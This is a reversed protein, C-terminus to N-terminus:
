IFDGWDLKKLAKFNEEKKTYTKEKIGEDSCVNFKVGIKSHEPHRLIVEKHVDLSPKKSLVIYSFKEDEFSETGDKLYRQVKTREIRKYFHCWDEKSMPCSKENTCPAIVHAGEKVLNNRIHRINSFGKVSGPEVIVLLNDTRNWLDKAVKLISKSDLENFMYSSIVLDHKPLNFDYNTIDETKVRAQKLVKYPSKRSIEQFHKVFLRNKEIITIEDLSVLKELLNFIVTGPGSGVDLVSKIDDLNTKSELKDFIDNIVQFINGFRTLLYVLIFEEENLQKVKEAKYNKTIDRQTNLLNSLKVTKLKEEIYEQIYDPIRM